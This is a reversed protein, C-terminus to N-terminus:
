KAASNATFFNDEFSRTTSGTFFKTISNSQSANGAVRPSPSQSARQYRDPASLPLNSPSPYINMIANAGDHIEHEVADILDQLVAAMNPRESVDQRLCSIALETVKWISETRYNTGMKPDVINRINGTGIESKVWDLLNSARSNPFSDTTPSQGTIVALLVVGFSYVDSKDTLYHDRFYAPDLYGFTGKVETTIGM